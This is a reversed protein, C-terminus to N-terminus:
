AETEFECGDDHGDEQASVMDRGRINYRDREADILRDLTELVARPAKISKLEKSPTDADKAHLMLTGCGFMRQSLPLLVKKDTIRYLEVEDEHINLLGKSTILKKDTLIYRTFSLPLGFIRKRDQWVVNKYAEKM